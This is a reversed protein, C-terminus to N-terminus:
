YSFTSGGIFERLISTYPVEDPFIPTFLSLFKLLRYAEDECGFILLEGPQPFRDENQPDFVSVLVEPVGDGTKASVEVMITDGGWDESVLELDALERRVRDPEAGPKDIKNIAVVIVDPMRNMGVLFNVVLFRILRPAIPSKM